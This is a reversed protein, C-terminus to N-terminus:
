PPAPLASFVIVVSSQPLPFPSCFDGAVVVSVSLAWRPAVMVPRGKWSPSLVCWNGVLRLQLCVASLVCGSGTQSNIMGLVLLEWFFPEWCRSLYHRGFSIAHTKRVEDVINACNVTIRFFSIEQTNIVVTSVSIGVLDNKQM